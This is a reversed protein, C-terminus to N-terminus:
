GRTPRRTHNVQHQRGAAGGPVEADGLQPPNSPGPTSARSGVCWGVVHGWAPPFGHTAAGASGLGRRGGPPGCRGSPRRAPDPCPHTRRASRRSGSRAGTSPPSSGCGTRPSPWPTRGTRPAAVTRRRRRDLRRGPDPDRRQRPHGDARDGRDARVPGHAWPRAGPLEPGAPGPADRDRHRARRLGRRHRLRHWPGRGRRRHRGRRRCGRRVAARRGALAAIGAWMSDETADILALDDESGAEGAASSSPSRPTATGGTSSRGATSPSWTARSWGARGRSATCSRTTSASASRGPSATTAWSPRRRARLRPHAGRRHRGARRDDHRRRHARAHARPDGGRGARGPADAPDPRPDQHRAPPPRVDRETRGPGRARGRAARRGRRRRGHRRGPAARRARPLDRGAPGDREVYVEQRHRIVDETDDVRGETEARKLLRQVVEDVDATLELVADIRHGQAALM